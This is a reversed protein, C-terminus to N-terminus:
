DGVKMKLADIEIKLEKIAEIFLGAMNGYAVALYEKDELTQKSVVEPLVEEIEQAIVGTRRKGNMEFTYGNIKTVKDLANEIKKIDKKLRKDSFGSIDSNSLISGTVVLNGTKTSNGVLPMYGSLSNSLRTNVWSQYAVDEDRASIDPFRLYRVTSDSYTDGKNFYINLRMNGSTTPKNHYEMMWFGGDVINKWNSWNTGNGRTNQIINGQVNIQKNFVFDSLRLTMYTKNVVDGLVVDDNASSTLGLLMHRVGNKQIEYYPKSHNLILNGTLTGGSSPLRNGGDVRKWPYWSAESNRNRVYIQNGYFPIYMQMCTYASPTVFLTGAEAIPYNLESIANANSGQGYVGTKIISNLNEKGLYKTDFDSFNYTNISTPKSSVDNWAVPQKNGQHYILYYSSGDYYYLKNRDSGTIIIEKNTNDLRMGYGTNNFTIQGNVVPNKANLKTNATNLAEVGKEYATKVAKSTALVNSNDFDIRDSKDLNFGTKKSITPEKEELKKLFYSKTLYLDHDETNVIVSAANSMVINIKIEMKHPGDSESPLWSAETDDNMYFYLIEKNGDKVYIGFERVHFGHTLNLNDIVTIISTINGDQEIDLIEQEIKFNKIQLFNLPDENARLTGDGFKIKSFVLPSKNSHIKALYNKGINTLGKFKM